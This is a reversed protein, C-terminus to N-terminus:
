AAPEKTRRQKIDRVAQAPNPIAQEPASHGSGNTHDCETAADTGDDPITWGTDDCRPCATGSTRRTTREARARQAAVTSDLATPRAGRGDLDRDIQEATYGLARLRAAEVLDLSRVVAKLWSASPNPKGLRHARATAVQTALDDDPEEGLDHAQQSSTQSPLSLHPSQTAGTSPVTAGTLSQTAGTTPPVPAERAGTVPALSAGTSLWEPIVLRYNSTRGSGRSSGRPGELEILGLHELALRARLVTRKSAKTDAVLRDAGPHCGRGTDWDAYRAMAAGVLTEMPGVGAPITTGDPLTLTEVADAQSPAGYLTRLWDSVPTTM